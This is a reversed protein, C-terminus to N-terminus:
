VVNVHYCMKLLSVEGPGASYQVYSGVNILEHDDSCGIVAGSPYVMTDTDSSQLLITYTSDGLMQGITLTDAAEAQLKLKSLSIAKSSM